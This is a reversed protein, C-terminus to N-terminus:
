LGKSGVQPQAILSDEQDCEQPNRAWLPLGVSGKMVNIAASM